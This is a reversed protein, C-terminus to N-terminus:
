RVRDGRRCCSPGLYEFDYGERDAEGLLDPLLCAARITKGLAKSAEELTHSENRWLLSMRFSDAGESSRPAKAKTCLFVGLKASQFRPDKYKPKENPICITLVAFLAASGFVATGTQAAALFSKVYSAKQDAKRWWNDNVAVELLLLLPMKNPKTEKFCLLVDLRFKQLQYQHFVEVKDGDGNGQNELADNVGECVFATLHQEQPAPPNAGGENVSERPLLCLLEVKKTEPEPREEETAAELSLRALANAAKTPGEEDHFRKAYKAFRDFSTSFVDDYRAADKDNETKERALEGGFLGRRQQV